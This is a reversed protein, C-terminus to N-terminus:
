SNPAVESPCCELRNRVDSIIDALIQHLSRRPQFNFAARAKAIDPQRRQM